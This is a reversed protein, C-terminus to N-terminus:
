YDYRGQTIEEDSICAEVTFDTLYAGKGLFLGLRMIVDQLTDLSFDVGGNFLDIISQRSVFISEVAVEITVAM